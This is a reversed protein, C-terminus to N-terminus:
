LHEAEVAQNSNRRAVEQAEKLAEQAKITLRDMQMIGFDLRWLGFVSLGFVPQSCSKISKVNLERNCCAQNSCTVLRFGKKLWGNTSQINEETTQDIQPIFTPQLM